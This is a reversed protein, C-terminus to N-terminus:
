LNQLAECRTMLEGAIRRFVEAIPGQSDSVVCPKGNDCAIVMAPDIPIQGLFQAKMREAMQRGGGQKFLPIAEGCSPCVLGSMNEVVGFVMLDLRRCFTISKQVDLLAVEQPTTVIVAGTVPGGAATLYQVASIPEDGTGPPCDVILYDLDGWNVDKLFQQILSIKMPGRWILADSSNELLFGISIAKLNHLFPVPELGHPGSMLRQDEIGLMKPISPGHIDIDLLGVSKGEQALAFALNVATSSKGVGGKGSMVLIKNRVGRLATKMQDQLQCPSPQRNDGPCNHESTSM